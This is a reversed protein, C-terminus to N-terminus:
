EKCFIRLKAGVSAVDSMTAHLLYAGQVVHPLPNNKALEKEFYVKSMVNGLFLWVEKEVLPNNIASRIKRWISGANDGVEAKHIRKQVAGTGGSVKANWSSDWSNLKSPANDNFM